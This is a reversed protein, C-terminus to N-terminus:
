KKRKRQQAEEVRRAKRNKGSFLRGQPKKNIYRLGLSYDEPNPYDTAATPIVYYVDREMMVGSPAMYTEHCKFRKTLSPTSSATTMAELGPTNSAAVMLSSAEAAEAEAIASMEAAIGSEIESVETAIAETIASIEATEAAIIASIEADIISESM